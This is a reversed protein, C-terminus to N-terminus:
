DFQQGSRYFIELEHKSVEEVAFNKHENKKCLTLFYDDSISYDTLFYSAANYEIRNCLISVRFERKGNWGVGLCKLFAEKRCWIYSHYYKNGQAIHLDSDDGLFMKAATESVTTKEQIDVGIDELDVAIVVYKGSHSVNFYPGDKIYPKGSEFLEIDDLKKGYKDLIYGLLLSSAYLQKAKEIKIAKKIRTQREAPLMDLIDNSINLDTTELVYLSPALNEM